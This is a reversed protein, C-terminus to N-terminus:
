EYNRFQSNGNKYEISKNIKIHLYIKALYCLIYKEAPRKSQKQSQKGCSEWYFANGFKHIKSLRILLVQYYFETFKGPHTAWNFPANDWVGFSQM